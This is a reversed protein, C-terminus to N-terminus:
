RGLQRSSGTAWQADHSRYEGGAGTSAAIRMTPDAAVVTVDSSDFRHLIEGASGSSGLDAVVVHRVGASLHYTLHAELVDAEDRVAVTSVLKVPDRDGDPLGGRWALALVERSPM